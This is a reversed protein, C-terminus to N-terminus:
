LVVFRAGNSTSCLPILTLPAQLGSLTNTDCKMIETHLVKSAAHSWKMFLLFSLFTRRCFRLQICEFVLLFSSESVLFQQASGSTGSPHHHPGFGSSCPFGNNELLNGTDLIYPEFCVCSTASLSVFLRIHLNSDPSFHCRFFANRCMGECLCSRRQPSLLFCSVASHSCKFVSKVGYIVQTSWLVLSLCCSFYM